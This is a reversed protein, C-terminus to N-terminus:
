LSLFIECWHDFRSLGDEGFKVLKARAQEPTRCVDLHTKSFFKDAFCIIQEEITEPLFDHEPLPLHQKRINEVTIGTGTHRECVRAHRPYGEKRLLEGGLLGHRIYPESGTCYISPADCRFVGIDHLMAGERVFDADAGLEPHHAVISLAMDAVSHSHTLLVHRLKNEKPYYKDLIAQYDM